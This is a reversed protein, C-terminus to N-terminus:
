KMRALHNRQAGSIAAPPQSEGSRSRGTRCPSREGGPDSRATIMMVPLHQTFPSSRIEGLATVGSMAPMTMDLIMLDFHRAQVMDLAAVPSDVLMAQYGMRTLRLGMVSLNTRSDDVVIIEGRTTAFLPLGALFKDM